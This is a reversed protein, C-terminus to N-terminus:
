ESQLPAGRKKTFWFMGCAYSSSELLSPELQEVYAGSDLVASFEVLDLGSCYDRITGPSHIRHANFCLRPRGVPVALFLNGSPALVRALEHCAAETGRPNLPDGYRGLGIHEVVHLCSISSISNDPFPMQLIDGGVCTLGTLEVEAPRYDLFTVPISASLLSGFTTQSGVDVHRAPKAALVRRMAWANAYYYQYDIRTTRTRDHLQPNTDLLHIREAGTMRTYRRWAAAYWTLARFGGALKLPDSFQVLWSHVWLVVRRASTSRIRSGVLLTM